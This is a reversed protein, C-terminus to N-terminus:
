ESGSEVGDHWAILLVDLDWGTNRLLNLPIEVADSSEFIWGVAVVAALAVIRIPSNM